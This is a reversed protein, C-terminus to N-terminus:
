KYVCFLKMWDQWHGHDDQSFQYSYNKALNIKLEKSLLVVNIYIYIYEM